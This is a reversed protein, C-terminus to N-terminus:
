LDGRLDIAIIGKPKGSFKDIMLFDLFIKGSGKETFQAPFFEGMFKTKQTARDPDFILLFPDLLKTNVGNIDWCADFDNPTDKSTVFSGDIYITKCGAKKLSTLGTELGVILKSRHSNMGFRNVFDKWTAWYIGVPLNGTDNFDPIM